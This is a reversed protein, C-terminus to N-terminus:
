EEELKVTVSWNGKVAKGTEYFRGFLQLDEMEEEGMLFWQEEFSIREGLLEEQWSVSADSYRCEGNEKYLFIQGYRDAAELNGRCIQVRLIGDSYGIGTVQISDELKERQVEVDMVGTSFLPFSEETKYTYGKLVDWVEGRGGKGSLTCEKLAPNVILLDMELTGEYERDEVLLQNVNFKVRDGAFEEEALVCVNFYAKGSDADYELFTCGGVNSETGYSKLQYSDYMDVKGAIFDEESGEEDFFSVILKAEKGEVQLAEVQMTIGKETDTLQMPLIYDALGPALEAIKEYAFSGVGAFAETSFLMLMLFCGVAVGVVGFNGAYKYGWLSPKQNVDFDSEMKVADYARKYSEKFKNEDFM